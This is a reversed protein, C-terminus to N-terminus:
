STYEANIRVYEYSLDSFYIESQETADAFSLIMDVEPNTMAGDLRGRVDDDLELATSRRAVDIGEITLDLEIGPLDPLVQGAAALIRGWNPDGGFLATKVLPSNGVSRAVPESAGTSGRVELRAVRTAGEGDAVIEIALQLLLVDLAEAFMREDDTGPEVTVGSAGSAIMFVSDNTSLQGDVSIREFSRELAADLLRELTTRDLAADTEIFCLMTAFSPSIMGAGKGQASLRIAGGSLPLELTAYKPTRDTTMIARAFDGARPALAGLAGSIGELVKEGDLRQGIVGTSAVGVSAADVGIGEAGEKVMAEAVSLGREGDSVNAVGSNVVVARLRGLEARRSVTVPAAVLANRTFRAASTAKDEDCVVMGVDLDGSAKIGCAVGAARFGAPLEDPDLETVGDPATVWRSRFFTETASPTV